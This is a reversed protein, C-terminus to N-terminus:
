DKNVSRDLGLLSDTPRPDTARGRRQDIVERLRAISGAISSCFTARQEPNLIRAVGEM